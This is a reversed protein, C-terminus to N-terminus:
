PQAQVVHHARAERGPEGLAYVWGRGALRHTEVRSRPVHYNGALVAEVAELVGPGVDEDAAAFGRALLVYPM